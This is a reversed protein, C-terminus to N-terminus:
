FREGPDKMDKGVALLGRVRFTLSLSIAAGEQREWVGCQQSSHGAPKPGKGTNGKWNEM